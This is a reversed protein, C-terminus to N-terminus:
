LLPPQNPRLDGKEWSETAERWIYFYEDNPMDVPAKWSMTNKDLVWSPYPKPEIFADYFENYEYGVGAYNYRFAKSQDEHLNEEKNGGTKGAKYYKGLATNYSTQKWEAHNTLSECFVRGVEESHEGNPKLCDKDAVAIVDIVKNNNGIKAFYAM